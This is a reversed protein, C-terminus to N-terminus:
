ISVFLPALVSATVERHWVLQLIGMRAFAFCVLVELMQALGVGLQVLELAAIQLEGNQYLRHRDM